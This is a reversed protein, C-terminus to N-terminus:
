MGGIFGFGLGNTRKAPANSVSLHTLAHMMAMAHMMIAM